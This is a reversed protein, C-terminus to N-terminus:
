SGIGERPITLYGSLRLGSAKQHRGFSAPRLSVQWPVNLWIITPTVSLQTM